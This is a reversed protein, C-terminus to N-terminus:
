YGEERLGEALKRASRSLKRPIEVDVTVFHDGSRSSSLVPMGKGKIRLVQGSQCGAPITLTVTGRVTEVDRETGLLADAIGITLHTRIDDGDRTFREDPEVQVLVYLDGAENGHAGAQGEGRLRLSQGDHIGAPITISVDKKREVRGEGRCQPCPEAPVEGKGHCAPCIVTQQVTGFFSQATRTVQGGGGCEKCQEMKTGKAAGKGGCEDCAVFTTLSITREGGEVATMFPVSISVELDRGREAGRRRARGRGGGFFTEFIDGIDGGFQSPDFGGFGAGGGFPNGEASGFQDYNRRKEENSLIQYAENVEKFRQEKEKDGKHKDPHLERSLTRYAKKIDEKSADRSVGLIQYFDKPM